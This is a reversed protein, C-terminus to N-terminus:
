DPKHLSRLILQFFMEEEEIKQFLKHLIPMIEGEKFTHYCESTIGEPGSVKRLPLIKM